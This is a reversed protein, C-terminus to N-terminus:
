ARLVFREMAHAFGDEDNSRTVRRASRQVTATRTAWRSAAARVGRVDLVDNPMDGITAIQRPRSGSRRPSTARGREGQERRPPHRRPLLAAVHTASVAGGFRRRADGDTAAAIADPDDSM